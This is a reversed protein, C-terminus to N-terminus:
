NFAERHVTPAGLLFDAAFIQVSHHPAPLQVVRGGQTQIGSGSCALEPDPIGRWAEAEEASLSSIVSAECPSWLLLVLGYVSLARCPAQSMALAWHHHEKRGPEM